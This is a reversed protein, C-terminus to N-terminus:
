EGKMAQMLERSADAPDLTSVDAPTITIETKNSTDVRETMGLYQKSLWIQLAKDGKMANSFMTQRLLEKGESQKLQKYASFGMNYKEECAMYLTDEHIGLLGAIGVGDCHAQLMKDVKAWDINSKPRAM